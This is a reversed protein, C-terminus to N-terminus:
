ILSLALSPVQNAQALLSSTTQLRIYQKTYESSEKAVDADNISSYAASLNEYQVTLSDIASDLRNIGTGALTARATVNDIAADVQNLMNEMHTRGATDSPDKFEINSVTMTSGSLLSFTAKCFLGTIKLTNQASNAESGIQFMVYDSESKTTDFILFDNFKASSTIRDM